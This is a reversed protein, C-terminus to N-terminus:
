LGSFQHEPSLPQFPVGPRPTVPLQQVCPSVPSSASTRRALACLAGIVAKSMLVEPAKRPM